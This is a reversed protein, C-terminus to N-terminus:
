HILRFEPYKQKLLYWLFKGPFIASISKQHFHGRRGLHLYLRPCVSPARCWRPHNFSAQALGRRCGLWSSPHIKPTKQALLTEAASRSLRSSSAASAQTPSLTRRALLPASPLRSSSCQERPSLVIECCKGHCLLQQATEYARVHVPAPADKQPPYVTYLSMTYGRGHPPAYISTSIHHARKTSTTRPHTHHHTILM